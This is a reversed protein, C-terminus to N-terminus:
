SSSQLVEFVHPNEKHVREIHEKMKDSRVSKHGCHICKYPKDRLHVTNLHRKLKDSRGLSSNCLTCHYPKIKLHVTSAHRSLRYREKFSKSCQTCSFSKANAAEEEEPSVGLKHFKKLHNKLKDKRVNTYPCFECKYPIKNPNSKHSTKSSSSPKSSPLIQTSLLYQPTQNGSMFVMGLAPHDNLAPYQAPLSM